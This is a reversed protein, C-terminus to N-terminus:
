IIFVLADLVPDHDLRSFMCPDGNGEEKVRGLAIVGVQKPRERLEHRCFPGCPVPTEGHRLEHIRSSLEAM